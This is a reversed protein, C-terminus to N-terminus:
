RSRTARRATTTTRSPMARSRSGARATPQSTRTRHPRRRRGVPEVAEHATDVGGTDGAVLNIAGPASPGFTTGFSNDSMSYHQAYNWLATTSNGDYYDMVTPAACAKAGNPTKGARGARGGARLPGDDRRQVVAARRQLQSGPRLDGPRRRRGPLGDPSSDLRLAPEREPERAGDDSGLQAPALGPDVRDTAPTLGAVAPTGPRASFPQGDGGSANPYTGFYHDFSVNEQFIVVVHKIPTATADTDTKKKAQGPPGGPPAAGAIGTALIAASGLAAVVLLGLMARTRSM